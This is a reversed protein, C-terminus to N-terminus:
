VLVNFVRFLCRVESDKIMALKEIENSTSTKVSLNAFFSVRPLIHLAESCNSQDSPQIYMFHSVLPHASEHFPLHV